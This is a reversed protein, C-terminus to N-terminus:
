KCPKGTRVSGGARYVVWIEATQVRRNSSSPNVGRPGWLFFFLFKSTSCHNLRRVVCCPIFFFVVVDRSDVFSAWSRGLLPPSGLSGGSGSCNPRHNGTLVRIASPLITRAVWTCKSPLWAYRQRKAHEAHNGNGHVMLRKGGKKQPGRARPLRGKPTSVRALTTM